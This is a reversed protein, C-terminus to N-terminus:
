DAEAEPQLESMVSGIIKERDPEQDFENQNREINARIVERNPKGLQEV